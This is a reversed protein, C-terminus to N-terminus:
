KAVHKLKEKLSDLSVINDFRTKKTEYIWHDLGGKFTVAGSNENAKYIQYHLKVDITRLLLIFKRLSINKISEFTYGSGTVVCCMQKELTPLVVGKNKLREVEELEAKLAPDIYDDNYDPMNQYCIIKRLEDFDKKKIIVDKVRIFGKGKEDFGYEVIDKMSHNCKECLGVEKEYTKQFLDVDKIKSLKSYTVALEDMGKVNNCHPCYRGNPVNLCLELITSLKVLLLNEEDESIKKLLYDIYSMPIGSPDLNKEITLADIGWYFSYYPM